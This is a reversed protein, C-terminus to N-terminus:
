PYVRKDQPKLEDWLDTMRLAACRLRLVQPKKSNAIENARTQSATWYIRGFGARDAKIQTM